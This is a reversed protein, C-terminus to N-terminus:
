LFLRKVIIFVFVIGIHFFRKRYHVKNGEKDLMYRFFMELHCAIVSEIFPMAFRVLFEVPCDRFGLM